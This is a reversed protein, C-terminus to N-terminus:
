KLHDPANGGRVATHASSEDKSVVKEANRNKPNSLSRLYVGGVVIVAILLTFLALVGVM